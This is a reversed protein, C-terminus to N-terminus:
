AKQTFFSRAIPFQDWDPNPHKYDGTKKTEKLHSLLLDHCKKIASFDANNKLAYDLAAVIFTTSNM